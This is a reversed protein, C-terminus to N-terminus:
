ADFVKFSREINKDIVKKVSDIETSIASHETDLSKLQLDFRKDESQIRAMTTEYEAEAKARDSEDTVELLSADGSTWSVNVFDGQGLSGGESNYTYLFLNGNDIENQLWEGSNMNQNPVTFAGGSQQIENFLNTYYNVQASDPAAATDTMVHATRLDAIFTDLQGAPAAIANNYAALVAGTVLLQGNSNKIFRQKDSISIAGYNTLNAATAVVQTSSGAITTSVRLLEKDLADSYKRSAQESMDALRIKQNQIQQAQLELDSLRSTLSMLRAQSASMGM